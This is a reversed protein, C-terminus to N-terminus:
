YKLKLDGTAEGPKWEAPCLKGTRLAKLVRLTEEVSRGVNMHSVVFYSVERAPNIIFTARLSVGEKEELVGYARGVSKMEDSLLPYDIGGLEEIWARHTELSDVSVGLIEAGEARFEAAMRSFGVVETPCIFTFDAPYFFLILWKGPYSKLSYEEVSGQYIGKLTFAPAKAGAIVM